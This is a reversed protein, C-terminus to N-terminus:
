LSWRMRMWLRSLDNRTEASWGYGIFMRRVRPVSCSRHYRGPRPVLPDCVNFLGLDAEYGAGRVVRMTGIRGRPEVPGASGAFGVGVTAALTFLLACSM